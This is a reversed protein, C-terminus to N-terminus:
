IRGKWLSGGHHQQAQRKGPNEKEKGRVVLIASQRFPLVHLPVPEVFTSGIMEQKALCTMPINSACIRDCAPAKKCGSSRKWYLLDNGEGERETVINVKGKECVEEEKLHM